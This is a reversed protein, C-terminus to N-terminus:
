FKDHVHMLLILPVLSFHLILDCATTFPDRSRSKQIKPSGAYRLFQNFGSVEYKARM